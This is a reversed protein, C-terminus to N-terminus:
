RGARGTSRSSRGCLGNGSRFCNAGVEEVYLFHILVGGTRSLGSLTQRELGSGFFCASADDQDDLDWESMAHQIFAKM